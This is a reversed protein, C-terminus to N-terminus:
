GLSELVKKWYVREKEVDEKTSLREHDIGIRSQGRGAPAFAVVIREEGSKYRISKQPRVTTAELKKRRLGASRAIRQWALYLSSLPMELTRHATVNYSGAIRQNLARKGTMREYEVTVMQAWWGNKIHSRSLFGAIDSHEMGKGGKKNLISFWEDWTKGTAKKVAEDSVRGRQM